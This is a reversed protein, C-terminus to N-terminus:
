KPEQNQRQDKMDKTSQKENLVEFLEIVQEREM